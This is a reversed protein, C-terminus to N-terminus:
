NKWRRSLFLQGCIWRDAIRGLFINVLFIRTKPYLLIAGTKCFFHTETSSQVSFSEIFCGCKFKMSPLHLSQNSRMLKSIHVSSWWLKHTLTTCTVIEYIEAVTMCAIFTSIARIVANQQLINCFLTIHFSIAYLFKFFNFFVRPGENKTFAFNAFFNTIRTKDKHVSELQLLHMRILSPIKSLFHYGVLVEM